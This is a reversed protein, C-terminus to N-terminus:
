LFERTWRPLNWGEIEKRTGHFYLCTKGVDMTKTIHDVGMYWTDEFYDYVDCVEPFYVTKEGPFSSHTM